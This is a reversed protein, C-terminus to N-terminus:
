GIFEYGGFMKKRYKDLLRTAGSHGLDSAKMAHAHADNDDKNVGIGLQYNIAMTFYALALDKQSISEPPSALLHNLQQMVHITDLTNNLEFANETMIKRQLCAAMFVWATQCGYEQIAKNAYNMGEDCQEEEYALESYSILLLGMFDKYMDKSADDSGLFSIKDAWKSAQALHERVDDFIGEKAFTRAFQIHYLAANIAGLLHGDNAAKEAWDIASFFDSEVGDGNEYRNSLEMRAENDGTAQEIQMLEEATLNKYEM